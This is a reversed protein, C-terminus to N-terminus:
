TESTKPTLLTPEPDVVTPVRRQPMNVLSTGALVTLGGILTTITVSEQLLLFGWLIGFVPILYAVTMANAPGVNRLLRFYLLYAIATCGLGLAAVCLWSKGSPTTAPWTMMALPLLMISAAILSGTSVVLPPVNKLTRKSYHAAIGYLVAAALGALLPTVGAVGSLKGWVLIVVGCFGVALGIVKQMSLLERLWVYGILGGFLPATANLVAADGAKMSLTAYAFLTFPIASNLAGLVALQRWFRFIMPLERSVMIPIILFVAAASVRMAILAIPGFEPSAVRMFLFSAGWLAGLLLWEFVDRVSM